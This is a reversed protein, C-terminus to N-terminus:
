NSTNIYMYVNERNFMCLVHVLSYTFTCLVSTSLLNSIILTLYERALSIFTQEKDEMYYTVVDEYINSLFVGPLGYIV